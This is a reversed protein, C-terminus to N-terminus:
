AHDYRRRYRRLAADLRATTVAEFFGNYGKLRVADAMPGDLLMRRGLALLLKSAAGAKRGSYDVHLAHPFWRLEVTVTGANPARISSM